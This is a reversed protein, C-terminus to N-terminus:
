QLFSLDAIAGDNEPRTLFKEESCCHIEEETLDLQLIKTFVVRNSPGLMRAEVQEPTVEMGFRQKLYRQWATLHFRKDDYLTGNFDFLVAYM